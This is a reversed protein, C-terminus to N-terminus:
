LRSGGVARREVVMGYMQLMTLMKFFFHGDFLFPDSSLQCGADAEDESYSSEPYLSSEDSWIPVLGELGLGGVVRYKRTDAAELPAGWWKGKGFVPQGHMPEEKNNSPDVAVNLFGNNFYGFVPRGHSPAMLLGGYSWPDMPVKVNSWSDQSFLNVLGPPSPQQELVADEEKTAGGCCFRKPSFGSRSQAFKLYVEDKFKDMFSQHFSLIKEVIEMLADMPSLFTMRFYYTGERQGFLCGPLVCVGYNELLETVYFEDPTQNRAQAEKVAKRSLHMRPYLFFAGMARRCSLGPVSNLKEYCFQARERLSNLILKKEMFHLKYSPEEPQPPNTLCYTVIQSPINQVLRLSALKRLVDKVESDVNLIECYGSRAGCEGVLGKSGSNVSALQMQDYPHGMEFLIRKFSLFEVDSDYVNDQYVEDVLIFLKEEYAFKIINQIETKSLVNGNPNGPNIIVLVKPKCHIRSANIARQLEPVDLSWDTDENLYYRIQYMGYELATCSFLPYMPIQLMVGAPKDSEDKYSILYLLIRLADAAGSSLFINEYHSPVGDRQQIYKAVQKRVVEMGCPMSYAGTNRGICNELITAARQKIDSPYDENQFLSPDACLSLIKRVFTLPKQGMGQPDASHVYFVEKFPFKKGKRIEERLENARDLLPSPWPFEFRTFSQNITDTRLIPIYGMKNNEEM